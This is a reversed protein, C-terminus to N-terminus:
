WNRRRGSARRSALSASQVLCQERLATLFTRLAHSVQPTRTLVGIAPTPGAFKVPLISLEGSRAYARAADYIMVGIMDTGALIAQNLRISALEIMPVPPAGGADVFERDIVARIPAGPPPLTWPYRSMEPWSVRKARALPHSPGAVVCIPMQMLKEVHLDRDGTGVDLRGVVCDIEGRRLASLLVPRTGDDVQVALGPASKRLALLTSSLMPAEAIPLVGIRIRGVAGHAIAQIEGKASEFDNLMLQARELLARGCETPTVGRKSRELLAAGFIDELEGILKSIAPQTLHVDRAAHQMSGAKTVALFIQLHRTKLARPM